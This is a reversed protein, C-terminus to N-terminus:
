LISVNRMIIYRYHQWAMTNEHQLKKPVFHVISANTISKNKSKTPNLRKRYPETENKAHDNQSM